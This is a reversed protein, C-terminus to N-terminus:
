WSALCGGWETLGADAAAQNSYEGGHTKSASASKKTVVEVVKTARHGVKAPAARAWDHAERLAAKRRKGAVASLADNIEDYIGRLRRLHAPDDIGLARSLLPPRGHSSLGTRGLMALGRSLTGLNDGRLDNPRRDLERRFARARHAIAWALKLAANRYASGIPAGLAAILLRLGRATWNLRHGILGFENPVDRFRGRACCQVVEPKVGIGIFPAADRLDLWTNRHARDRSCCVM